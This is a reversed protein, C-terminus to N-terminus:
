KEAEECCEDFLDYYADDIEENKLMALVLPLTSKELRKVEKEAEAIKLMMADVIQKVSQKFDESFCDWTMFCKIFDKIVNPKRLNNGNFVIDLAMDKVDGRHVFVDRNGVFNVVHDIYGGEWFENYFTKGCCECKMITYKM